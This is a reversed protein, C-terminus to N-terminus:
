GVAMESNKELTSWGVVMESDKELAASAPAFAHIAPSPTQIFNERMNDEMSMQDNNNFSATPTGFSAQSFPNIASTANFSFMSSATSA